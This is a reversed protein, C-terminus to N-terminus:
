GTPWTAGAWETSPEKFAVPMFTQSGLLRNGVLPAPNAARTVRRVRIEERLGATDPKKFSRRM